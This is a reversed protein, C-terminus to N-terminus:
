NTSHRVQLSSTASDNETVLEFKKKIIDVIINLFKKSTETKFYKQQSVDIICFEINREICAQIKRTDNNQIKDLKDQGYIPEYHFIGNLEFAVKFSPIFIDLESNITDTKNFDIKLEPYLSKLEKELYIELKSRRNGKTKHTNNYTAACSKSCFNNSTKKIQNQSKKFEKGCNGCFVSISTILSDNSCKHSCFCGGGYVKKERNQRSVRSQIYAKSQGFTKGCQHCECPLLESSKATDFQEKTYLPKM